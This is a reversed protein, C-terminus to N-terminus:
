PLNCSEGLGAMAAPLQRMGATNESETRVVCGELARALEQDDIRVRKAGNCFRCKLGTLPEDGAGGCRPCTIIAM